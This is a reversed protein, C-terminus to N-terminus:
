KKSIGLTSLPLWFVIQNPFVDPIEPQTSIINHIHIHNVNVTALHKTDYNYYSATGNIQFM